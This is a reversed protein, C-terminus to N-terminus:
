DIYTFRAGPFLDVNSCVQLSLPKTGHAVLDNGSGINILIKSAMYAEVM